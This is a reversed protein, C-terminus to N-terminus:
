QLLLLVARTPRQFQGAATAARTAGADPGLGIYFVVPVTLALVPAFSVFLAWLNGLDIDAVDRAMISSAHVYWYMIVHESVAFLFLTLAMKVPM